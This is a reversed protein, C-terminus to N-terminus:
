ARKKSIKIFLTLIITTCVFMTIAVIAVKTIIIEKNLNTLITFIITTGTSTGLIYLINSKDEKINIGFIGLKVLMLIIYIAIILLIITKDMNDKFSEGKIYISYIYDLLLCVTMIKFAMAYINKLELHIREDEVMKKM